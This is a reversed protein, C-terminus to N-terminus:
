WAAGLVIMGNIVCLVFAYMYLSVWWPVSGFPVYCLSPLPTLAVESLGAGFNRLYWQVFAYPYTIHADCAGTTVLRWMVGCESMCGFLRCIIGTLRHGVVSVLAM